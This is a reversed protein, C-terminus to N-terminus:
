CKLVSNSKGFSILKTVDFEIEGKFDKFSQAYNDVIVRDDEILTFTYKGLPNQPVHICSRHVGLSKDYIATIKDSQILLKQNRALGTVLFRLDQCRGASFEAAVEEISARDEFKFIKSLISIYLDIEKPPAAIELAKERFLDEWPTRLEEQFPEKWRVTENEVVWPCSQLHEIKKVASSSPLGIQSFIRQLYIKTNEIEAELSNDDSEIEEIFLEETVLEFLIAGASWLEARTTHGMKLFNEPARYPSNPQFLDYFKFPAEMVRNKSTKTGLGFDIVTLYRADPEYLMNEPTLDAHALENSHMGSLFEFFQETITTIDKWPFSVQDLAKGPILDTALELDDYNRYRIAHPIQCENVFSTFDAEDEGESSDDFVKIAVEIEKLRKPSPAINEESTLCRKGKYVQGKVGEGLLEDTCLYSYSNIPQLSM